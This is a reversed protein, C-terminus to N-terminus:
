AEGPRHRNYHEEDEFAEAFVSLVGGLLLTDDATLQHIRMSSQVTM